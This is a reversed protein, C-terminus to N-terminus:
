LYMDSLLQIKQNYLSPILAPLFLFLSSFLLATSLSGLPFPILPLALPCLSIGTLRKRDFSSSAVM